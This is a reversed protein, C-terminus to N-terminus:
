PTEEPPEEEEILEDLEVQNSYWVQLTPVFLWKTKLDTLTMVRLDGEGDICIADMGEFGVILLEDSGSTAPIFRPLGIGM